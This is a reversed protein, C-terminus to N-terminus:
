AGVPLAISFIEMNLPDMLRAWMQKLSLLQPPGPQQAAALAPVAQQQEVDQQQQQQSPV